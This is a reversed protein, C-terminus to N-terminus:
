QDALEPNLTALQKPGPVDAIQASTLPGEAPTNACLDSKFRGSGARRDCQDVPRSRIGSGADDRLNLGRPPSGNRDCRINATLRVNQPCKFADIASEAAEAAENVVSHRGALGRTEGLQGPAAQAVKECWHRQSM